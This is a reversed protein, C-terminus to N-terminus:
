RCGPIHLKNTIKRIPFQTYKKVHPCCLCYDFLEDEESKDEIHSFVHWEEQSTTWNWTDYIM